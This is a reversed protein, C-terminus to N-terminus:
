GHVTTPSLSPRLGPTRRPAASLPAAGSSAYRQTIIGIRMHPSARGPHVDSPDLQDPKPIVAGECEARFRPQVEEDARVTLALRGEELREVDQQRSSGEARRLEVVTKAPVGPASSRHCALKNRSALCATNSELQARTLSPNLHSAREARPSGPHAKC